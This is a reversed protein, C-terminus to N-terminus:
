VINKLLMSAMVTINRGELYVHELELIFAYIRSNKYSILSILKNANVRNYNHKPDISYFHCVLLHYYTEM